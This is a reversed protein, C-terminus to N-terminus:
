DVQFSEVEGTVYNILEGSPPKVIRGKKRGAVLAHEAESTLHYIRNRPEFLRPIAANVIEYFWKSKEYSIPTSGLWFPDSPPSVLTQRRLVYKRSVAMLWFEDDSTKLIVDDQEMAEQLKRAREEAALRGEREDRWVKFVAALLLLGALARLIWRAVPTGGVREVLFLIAIGLGSTLSGQWTRVVARLFLGLDRVLDRM